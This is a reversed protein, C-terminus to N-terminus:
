AGLSEDTQESEQENELSFSRDIDAVLQCFEDVRKTVKDWYADAQRRKETCADQTQALLTQSQEQSARVLREAQESAERAKQRSLAERESSLRAVNELYQGAARQAAEFVHNLQLAAEAISGADQIAITREELAARCADLEKQLQENRKTQEALLEWLQTKSCRRIEKEDM